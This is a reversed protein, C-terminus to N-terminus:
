RTTAARRRRQLATNGEADQANVDVHLEDVLFKVAALM